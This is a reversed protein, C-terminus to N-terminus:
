LYMKEDDYSRGVMGILHARDVMETLTMHGKKWYDTCDEIPDRPDLRMELMACVAKKMGGYRATALKLFKCSGCLGPFRAEGDGRHWRTRREVEYASDQLAARIKQDETKIEEM